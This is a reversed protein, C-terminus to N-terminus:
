EPVNIWCGGNIGTSVARKHGVKMTSNKWVFLASDVPEALAGGLIIRGQAAQM